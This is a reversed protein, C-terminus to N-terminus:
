YPRTPESIHILSLDLVRSSDENSPKKEWSVVELNRVEERYFDDIRETYDNFLEEETPEDIQDQVANTTVHIGDITYNVHQKIYSDWVDKDSIILDANVMEQLKINPIYTSKMFQEIQAWENGSPNNIAQEYKSQDFEGNTQFAPDSTLFPPPINQM